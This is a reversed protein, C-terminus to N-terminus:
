CVDPNGEVFCGPVFMDTVDLLENMHQSFLSHSGDVVSEWEIGHQRPDDDFHGLMAYVPQIGEGMGVTYQVHQAWACNYSPLSNVKVMVALVLESLVHLSMLLM